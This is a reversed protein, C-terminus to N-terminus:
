DGFLKKMLYPIFEPSLENFIIGILILLLTLGLLFGLRRRRQKANHIEVSKELIAVSKKVDDQIEIVYDEVKDIAEGQEQILTAIEEYLIRIEQVGKELQHMEEDRAKMSELERRARSDESLRFIQKTLVLSTQSGTLQALDQDSGSPDILKYQRELQKRYKVRHAEQRKDFDSMAKLFARGVARIKAGNSSNATAKLNALVKRTTSAEELVQGALAEIKMILKVCEETRAEALSNRHLM